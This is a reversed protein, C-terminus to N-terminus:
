FKELAQSCTVSMANGAGLPISITSITYEGRTGTSEDNITARTNPELYFCPLATMSLTNQYSTYILLDYKVQSFADNNMGGTTFYKYYDSTVQIIADTLERVSTKQEEFDDADTYLFAVEPIEPTFICNVDDSNTVNTRRGINNISYEGYRSSSSDIIDFYYYGENIKFQQTSLDYITPWYAKLEEYYHNTEIGLDDAALGQLLIETRYDTAVYPKDEYYDICNLENWGFTSSNSVPNYYWFSYDDASSGIRHIKGSNDVEPLPWTSDSDYIVPFAINYNGTDIDEYVLVNKYGDLNIEPIDDVALHYLVTSTIETSSDTYSGQVIFENKINEYLPTNTLSILTSDDFTYLAKTVNTDYLYDNERMDEWLISSQSTNLYNKIERFHFIGYEDYFYEYNGLWNKIKDLVTTITTGAAFTLEDDYVFDQYEYGIDDGYVYQKGSEKIASTALSDLCINYSESGEGEITYIWVPENGIWRIIRQTKLPVDEIIINSLDESGFHNVAEMIIDYVLAKNDSQIGNTTSTITDFRTTAPLTGGVTGDLMAMKDKFQLNITCAGSASSTIAFDSIFFVGQPFWITDYDTWSSSNNIIGIELFIKKNISYKSKISAPDYTFADVNCSLSCTRRVASSGDKTLTGSIIEGEIDDIINENYDLLTIKVLQESYISTQLSNLFDKDNLYPYQINM